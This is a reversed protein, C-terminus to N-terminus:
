PRRGQPNRAEAWAILCVFDEECEARKTDARDAQKRDYTARESESLKRAVLKNLRAIEAQDYGDSWLRVPEAVQQVAVTHVPRHPTWQEARGYAFSMLAFWCGAVFLTFIKTM